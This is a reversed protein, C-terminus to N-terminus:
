AGNVRRALRETVKAVSRGSRAELRVRQRQDALVYVRVHDAVVVAFVYGSVAKQLV